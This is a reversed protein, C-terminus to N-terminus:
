GIRKFSQVMGKGSDENFIAQESTIVMGIISLALEDPDDIEPWDPDRELPLDELSIYSPIFLDSQLFDFLGRCDAPEYGGLWSKREVRYSVGIELSAWVDQGSQDRYLMRLGSIYQTKHPGPTRDFYGANWLKVIYQGMTVRDGSKAETIIPGASRIRVTGSVSTRFKLSISFEPNLVTWIIPISLKRAWIVTRADHLTYLEVGINRAYNKVRKAFGKSCILVGRHAGVDEVVSKFTGLTNIDARRSLDKVQVVLLYDKGDVRWKASIDIQREGETFNGYISDDLTVEAYPMLEEVIQHALEEYKAWQTSQRRRAM